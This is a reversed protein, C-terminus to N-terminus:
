EPNFIGTKKMDSKDLALVRCIERQHELLVLSNGAVLLFTFNGCNEM